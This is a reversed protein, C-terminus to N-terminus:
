QQAEKPPGATSIRSKTLNRTSWNSRPPRLDTSSMGMPVLDHDMARAIGARSSGTGRSRAVWIRAPPRSVICDEPRTARRPLRRVMWASWADTGPHSIMSRTAESHPLVDSVLTWAAPLNQVAYRAWLKAALTRTPSYWEAVPSGAGRILCSFLQAAATGFTLGNGAYGTALYVRSGAERPGILPLGDVSEMIQGSWEKIIRGVPFRERAFAELRAVSDTAEDAGTRHDEGGVLLIPGDHTIVSRIYHYPDDTGLLTRGRSRSERRRM